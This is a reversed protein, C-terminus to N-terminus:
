KPQCVQGQSFPVLGPHKPKLNLHYGELKLKDQKLVRAAVLFLFFVM